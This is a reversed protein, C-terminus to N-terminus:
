SHHSTDVANQTSTPTRQKNTRHKAWTSTPM